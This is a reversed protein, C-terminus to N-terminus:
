QSLAVLVNLEFLNDGLYRSHIGLQSVPRVAPGGTSPLFTNYFANVDVYTYPLQDNQSLYTWRDQKTLRNDGRQADLALQAASGTGLVFLNDVAGVSVLTEGTDAARLTQFTQAAVQESQLPAIFTTLLKGTSTQAAQAAAASDTKVVLLVDYPANLGPLPDNPRPLLALSYSGKLKDLLDSQVDVTGKIASLFGSVAAQAAQASPVTLSQGTNQAVPFASLASGAFNLFPLSYLADTAITSADTGSQVIMASRPILDLVAPDFATDTVDPTDATHLIVQADVNAALRLDANISIGIGDLSGSLLLREPTKDTNLLALSQNVATLIPDAAPSTSLLASLAHAAADKALYASIVSNPPLAANVQQYIPDATLPAGDGNMTDITEHLLASPGVLVATSLFAFSTKDGDYIINDRYTERKLFDQAKIVASLASAAQLGDTSPFIMVTNDTSAEFHAGFSKYAIIVERDLWPLVNQTFSTNEMDFTTLPFYTDYNQGQAYHIRSPQLVSATFLSVNLSRVTNQPDTMDVRVFGTFDAPIWDIPAPLSSLLPTANQAVVPLALVWFLFIVPFTWFIRKM